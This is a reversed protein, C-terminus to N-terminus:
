AKDLMSLAFCKSCMGRSESRFNLSRFMEKQFLNHKFDNIKIHFQHKSMSIKGFEQVEKKGKGVAIAKIQM